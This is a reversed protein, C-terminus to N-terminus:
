IVFKWIVSFFVLLFSLLLIRWPLVTLTSGSYVPPTVPVEPAPWPIESGLSQAVFIASKLANELLPIGYASHAACYWINNQGQFKRLERIGKVSRKNMIPREFNTIALTKSPDPLPAPNITQFVEQKCNSFVQPAVNNMWINAVPYKLSKDHVYSVNGWGDRSKPMLIDDTHVYITGKVYDFMKLTEHLEPPGAVMTLAHNAQTAVVVHDYVYEKGNQDVVCVKGKQSPHPFVSKVATNCYINAFNKSIKTIVERSGGVVMRVGGMVRSSFFTLFMDAPYAKVEEYSCTCMASLSPLIIKEAFDDSYGYNKLYEGFTMGQIAPDRLHKAPLFYLRLADWTMRMFSVSTFMKILDVYPLSLGGIIYNFYRFYTSRDSLNSYSQCYDAPRFNVGLHQYLQHLNAYYKEDFMRLPIDVRYKNGQVNVDVASSDFGLTPAKEFVDVENDKSLLWAASLGGIGTGVM